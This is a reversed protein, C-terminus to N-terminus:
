ELSVAKVDGGACFAKEGAGKLILLRAPEREHHQQELPDLLDGFTGKIATMMGRIMSISLANLREPKNLTLQVVGGNGDRGTREM